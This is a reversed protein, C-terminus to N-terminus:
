QTSEEEQILHHQKFVFDTVVPLHDFDGTKESRLVDETLLGSQNLESSSMITTNLVFSNQVGMVSDTYIVRDLAGPAFQKNDDRWTYWNKERGNHRPKVEMLFTEDWDPLMDAGFKVEDVVNGTLLTSLHQAPDDPTSAYVNLDGLIIIPTGTPLANPHKKKHLQRLKSVISDAQMQRSEINPGSRFHATMLYLDPLNRADPLDVLCMIQGLHFDPHIAKVPIVYEYERRRLPYRSAIILDTNPASHVHWQHPEELPLLRDMLQILSRANMPNVEQLCIIDPQVAKIIREFSKHRKEDPKFISNRWINWSM